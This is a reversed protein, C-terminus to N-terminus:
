RVGRWFRFGLLLFPFHPDINKNLKKACTSSLTTVITKRRRTEDKQKSKLGVLGSWPAFSWVQEISTDFTQPPPSREGYLSSCISNWAKSRRTLGHLSKATGMAFIHFKFHKRRRKKDVEERKGWSKRQKCVFVCVSRPLNENRSQCRRGSRPLLTPAATTSPRGWFILLIVNQSFQCCKLSPPWDIM